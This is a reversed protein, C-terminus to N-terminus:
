HCNKIVVRKMLLENHFFLFNVQATDQLVKCVRSNFGKEWNKLWSIGFQQPASDQDLQLSYLGRSTCGLTDDGMKKKGFKKSVKRECSFFLLGFIVKSSEDFEVKHIFILSDLM